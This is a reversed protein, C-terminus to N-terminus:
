IFVDFTGNILIIHGIAEVPRVKTISRLQIHNHHQISKIRIKLLPIMSRGVHSRNGSRKQCVGMVEIYSGFGFVVKEFEKM